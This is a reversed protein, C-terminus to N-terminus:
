RPISWDVYNAGEDHELVEEQKRTEAVDSPDVPRQDTLLFDTESVMALAM